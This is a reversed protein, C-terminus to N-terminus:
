LIDADVDVASRSGIEEATIRELKVVDLDEEDEDNESRARCSLGDATGNKKGDVHRVDFDFLRIYSLWQTMMANPLDNPPQNLIWVLNRSDTEVQFHRGYVWFRFKKLSKLLAWCELKLADYKKETDSWIGSEYRVPHLLGDEWYQSLVGGM